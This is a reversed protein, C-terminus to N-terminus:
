ENRSIVCINDLSSSITFYASDAFGLSLFKIKGCDIEDYGDICDTIGDCVLGNDICNTGNDCHFGNPQCENSM